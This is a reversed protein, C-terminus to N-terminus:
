HLLSACKLIMKSKIILLLFSSCLHRKYSCQCINPCFLPIQTRIQRAKERMPLFTSQLSILCISALITAYNTQYAVSCIYLTSLSCIKVTNWSRQVKSWYSNIWIRVKGLLIMFCFVLQLEIKLANKTAELHM